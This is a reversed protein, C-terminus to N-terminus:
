YHNYISLDDPFYYGNNVVTEIATNLKDYIESKSVFGRFGAGLLQQLDVEEKHQSVAIIKLTQDHWLSYKSTMLGSMGPMNIDMLVIDANVTTEKLFTLGDSVEGVIKHALRNELFLKLVSRFKENDDVLFIKM